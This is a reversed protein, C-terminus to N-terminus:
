CISSYKSFCLSFDL